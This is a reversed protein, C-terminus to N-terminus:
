WLDSTSVKAIEKWIFLDSYVSFMDRHFGTSEQL